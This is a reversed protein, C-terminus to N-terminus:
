EVSVPNKKSSLKQESHQIGYKTRLTLIIFRPDYLHHDINPRKKFCLIQNVIDPKQLFYTDGSATAFNGYVSIPHMLKQGDLYSIEVGPTEERPANEKADIIAFFACQHLLAVEASRLLAYDIVAERETFGNGKFRIEYTDQAVTKESYGGLFNWKQSKYPTPVCGSTLLLGLLTILIISTRYIM